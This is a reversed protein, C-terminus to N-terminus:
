DLEFDDATNTELLYSGNLRMIDLAANRALEDCRENLYENAHGKVWKYEVSLHKKEESVLSQWLQQNKVPKGSSTKWDNSQWNELWGCRHADVVYKSDSYIIVDAPEPISALARVVTTLEMQNNTVEACGESLEIHFPEGNEDHACIVAGWGGFGPNQLSSGDTWIEIKPM